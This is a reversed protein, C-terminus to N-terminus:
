RPEITASLALPLATGALEAAPSLITPRASRNYRPIGPCSATLVDEAVIGPVLRGAPAAPAIEITQRRPTKMYASLSPEIAWACTPVSHKATSSLETDALSPEPAVATLASDCVNGAALLACIIATPWSFMELTTTVEDGAPVV